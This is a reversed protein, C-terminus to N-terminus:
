TRQRWARLRRRRRRFRLRALRARSRMLAASLLLGLPTFAAAATLGGLLRLEERHRRALQTPDFVQSMSSGPEMLKEISEVFVPIAVLAAAILLLGPVQWWRRGRPLLTFMVAGAIGSMIIGVVLFVLGDSSAWADRLDPDGLGIAVPLMRWVPERIERAAATIMGGAAVTLLVAVLLAALSAITARVLVIQRALARPILRHGDSRRVCAAHCKPCVVVPWGYIPERPAAIGTLNVGCSHCSHSLM